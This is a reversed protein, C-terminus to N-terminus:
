GLLKLLLCDSTYLVSAVKGAGNSNRTAVHGGLDATPHGLLWIDRIIMRYTAHAASAMLDM